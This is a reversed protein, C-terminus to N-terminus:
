CEVAEASGLLPTRCVLAYCGVGLCGAALLAMFVPVSAALSTAGAVAGLGLVPVASGLYTLVYVASIAQAHARAPVALSVANFGIRFAVGQALGAVVAGAIFLALSHAVGSFGMALAGLAMVALAWLLARMPAHFDRGVFQSLASAALVLAALAGTPLGPALAFEGALFAPALALSFGFLAFSLFGITGAVWFPALAARPMGPRRPRLVRYGAAPTADVAPRARIALLPVLLLVLALAHLLFVTRTPNPLLALAGGLVPGIAVGGASVLLTLRGALQPNRPLLERLAASCAGTALAVAAGQLVRGAILQPLSDATGFVLTGGLGLVVAVSMAARRGLYDSWHGYVLLGAILALVYSAFGLTIGLTDLGLRVQILPYLPTALNAGILLLGMVAMSLALRARTGANWGLRLSMDATERMRLENIITM